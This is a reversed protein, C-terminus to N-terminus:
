VNCRWGGCQLSSWCDSRRCIRKCGIRAEKGTLWATGPCAREVSTSPHQHFLAREVQLPSPWGTREVGWEQAGVVALMGLSFGYLVLSGWGSFELVVAKLNRRPLSVLLRLSEIDFADSGARGLSRVDLPIHQPRRKGRAM